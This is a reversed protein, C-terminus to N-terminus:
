RRLSGAPSLGSATWCARVADLTEMIELSESLPMLESELLGLRLCRGVEDAEYQYGNGIFPFELRDLITEGRYLTMAKPCWFPSELRIRGTTGIITAEQPTDALLTSRVIALQGEGYRLVVACQEDVGTEGIHATSVIGSPRGLVMSALSLGYVGVDLLSGGGFTPDYLLPEEDKTARFGFDAEVMQVEGIVGDRIMERLRTMAPFFRTWMAEMLFLRKDRAEAILAKAEEANVTFPKECLVSKGATLALRANPEHLANPTAIYVVDIEPDCVLGEYDSYCRTVGFQTGFSEASALSRSGVGHLGGYESGSLGKAFQRAIRGTGLIGWKLLKEMIARSVGPYGHNFCCGNVPFAFYIEFRVFLLGLWSM